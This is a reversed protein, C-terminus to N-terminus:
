IYSKPGCIVFSTLHSKFQVVWNRFVRVGFLQAWMKWKKMKVVIEGIEGETKKMLKGDVMARIDGNMGRKYDLQLFVCLSYSSDIVNLFMKFFHLYFDDGDTWSFIESPLGLGLYKFVQSIWCRLNLASAEVLKSIKTLCVEAQNQKAFPLFYMFCSQCKWTLVKVFEYVLTSLSNLWWFIVEGVIEENDELVLSGVFSRSFLLLGFM